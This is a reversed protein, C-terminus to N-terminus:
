LTKLYELIARRETDTLVSNFEHGQNGQGFMHTNYIKRDERQQNTFTPPFLINWTVILNSFLGALVQQFLPDAFENNPDCNIYPSVSPNLIGRWECAIVDYKWGLKQPDYARALDTDFGMIVRGQQDARAPKSVRRWLPKRDSPKLLEWLNPISGNHLYPATAWVGYLPPALYGLARDGRLDSRNQPGCDQATGATPPYGFFNTAGAVQVAENNTNVRVPDTGIINLPVIYSAVGELAADDLFSPDHSYRPSYAGHCSACSGNGAPRPVPNNRAAAWMDLTHFLTAGQEALASDIALPYAPAKLTEVWTDLDPGHQRMWSQGAESLSGGLSGFIGLFPGYFVMDVRPADMPFVGDVFKLPRHGMNWWAPTDMGATSGSTLVGLVTQPSLV